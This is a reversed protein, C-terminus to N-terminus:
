CLSCCAEQFQKSQFCYLFCRIEFKSMTRSNQQQWIIRPFRHGEDSVCLLIQLPQGNTKMLGTQRPPIQEIPSTHSFAMSVPPLSLLSLILFNFILETMFAMEQGACFLAVYRMKTTSRCSRAIPNEM